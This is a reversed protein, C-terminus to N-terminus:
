ALRELWRTGEDDAHEFAVQVDAPPVFSGAREPWEVFVARAYRTLEPFDLDLAEDPSRLRYCDVHVLIGEPATYEHILDYTPSRAPEAGVVQTVARVFTTKGTGLDGTLWVVAGDDLSRWVAAAYRGLEDLTVVAREGVPFDVM